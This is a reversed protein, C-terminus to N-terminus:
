RPLAAAGSAAAAEAKAEEYRQNLKTARRRLQSPSRPMSWQDAYPHVATLAYTRGHWAVQATGGQWVVAAHWDHAACRRWMCETM